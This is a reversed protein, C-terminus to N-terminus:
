DCSTVNYLHFTPVETHKLGASIEKSSVSHGHSLLKRLQHFSPPFQIREQSMGLGGHVKLVCAEGGSDLWSATLDPVPILHKSDDEQLRATGASNVKDGLVTSLLFDVGSGRITLEEVAM